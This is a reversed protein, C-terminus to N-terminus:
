IAQSVAKMFSAYSEHAILDHPMLVRVRSALEPSLGTSALASTVEGCAGEKELRFVGSSKELAGPM